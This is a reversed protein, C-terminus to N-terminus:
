PRALTTSLRITDSLGPMTVLVTVKTIDRAPSGSQDRVVTTKRQMNPYDPFGTTDATAGSGYRTVLTGYRPDARVLELRERAVATATTVAGAKSNSNLFAGMYRGFTTVMIVLIVMAIMIEILSM